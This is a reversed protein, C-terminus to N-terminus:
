VEDEDNFNIEIKAEEVKKPMYAKSVQLVTGQETTDHEVIDGLRNGDRDTYNMIFDRFKKLTLPYKNTAKNRYQLKLYVFEYQEKEKSEVLEVIFKQWETLTNYVLRFYKDGKYPLTKNYEEFMSEYNLLYNGFQIILESEEDLVADRFSSIKEQTWIRNLNKTALDMVSFRRDDPELHMDSEDNNTIISSCYIEKTVADKGKAEINQTSNIYRKLRSHAPKDVKFEDYVVLRKNLMFSNFQSDAYGVPVFNYNDKGVLSGLLDCLIGKGIGKAGNLVLYTENRGLITERAWCLFYDLAEVKPFLHDLFEKMVGPLESGYERSKIRWKPALYLNVRVLKEDKYNYKSFREIDYPDYKFICDLTKGELLNIEEQRLKMYVAKQNISLIQNTSPNYYLIDATEVDMLPTLNLRDIDKNELNGIATAAYQEKRKERLRIILTDFIPSLQRNLDADPMILFENLAHESLFQRTVVDKIFSNKTVAGGNFMLKAGYLEAKESLIDILKTKQDM